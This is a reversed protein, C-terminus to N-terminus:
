TFFAKAMNIEMKQMEASQTRMGTCSGLEELELSFAEKM